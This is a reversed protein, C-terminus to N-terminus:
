LTAEGKQWACPTLEGTQLADLVRLVETPNRGVGLDTVYVFRVIRNPDVIFAARQSVGEQRDIIGLAGSLERKLDSLMPFALNNLEKKDKMWALHVYENDVSATLVQANRAVFKDNLASFGAIETPCVFTFDKPYFFVVLWKGPYDKDSVTKFASAMDTSVTATMSFEPFKDGVGIM